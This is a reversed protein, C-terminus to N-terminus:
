NISDEKEVPIEVQVEAEVKKKSEKVYIGLKDDVRVEVGKMQASQKNQSKNLLAHVQKVGGYCLCLYFTGVKRGGDFVDRVEMCGDYLYIPDISANIVNM